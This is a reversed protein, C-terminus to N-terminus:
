DPENVEHNGTPNTEAIGRHSSWIEGERDLEWQHNKGSSTKVINAAFRHNGLETDSGRCKSVLQSEINELCSDERQKEEDGGKM